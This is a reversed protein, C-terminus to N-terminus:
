ARFHHQNAAAYGLTLMEGSVGGSFPASRQSVVDPKNRVGVSCLNQRKAILVNAILVEWLLSCIAEIEVM